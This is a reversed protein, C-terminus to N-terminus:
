EHSDERGDADKGRECHGDPVGAWQRTGRIANSHQGDFEGEDRAEIVAL